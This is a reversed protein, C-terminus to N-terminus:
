RDTKLWSSVVQKDLAAKNNVQQPLRHMTRLVAGTAMAPVTAAALTAAALPPIEVAGVALVGLGTAMVLGAGAFAGYILQDRLLLSHTDGKVMSIDLDLDKMTLTADASKYTDRDANEAGANSDLEGNTSPLDSFHHLEDLHDSAIDAAARGKATPGNTSYIILDARTVKGSAGKHAEPFITKLTSLFDEPSAFMHNSLDGAPGKAQVPTGNDKPQVTETADQNM